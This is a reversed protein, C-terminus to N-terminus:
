GVEDRNRLMEAMREFAAELAHRLEDDIRAGALAHCMCATWQDRADADIPFPAHASRICIPGYRETHLQPGGLWGCLYLTLRERMEGLDAKHMARIGAAAPSDDMRDYFRDVLARM